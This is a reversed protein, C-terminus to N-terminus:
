MSAALAEAHGADAHDASKVPYWGSLFRLNFAVLVKKAKNWADTDSRQSTVRVTNKPNSAPWRIEYTYTRHKGKRGNNWHVGTANM